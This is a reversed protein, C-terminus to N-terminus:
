EVSAATTSAPAPQYLAEIVAAVLVQAGTPTELDLLGLEVAAPRKLIPQDDEGYVARVKGVTVVSDTFDIMVMPIKGRALHWAQRRDRVVAWGHQACTQKIASWVGGSVGAGRLFMTPVPLVKSVSGDAPHAAPPQGYGASLAVVELRKVACVAARATTSAASLAAGWADHNNSSVPM